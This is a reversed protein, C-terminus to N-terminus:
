RRSLPVGDGHLHGNVKVPPLEGDPAAAEPPAQTEASPARAVTGADAEPEADARVAVDTDADADAPVPADAGERVPAEGDDGGEPRAMVEPAAPSEEPLGSGAVEVAEDAAASATAGAALAAAAAASDHKLSRREPEAQLVDKPPAQCLETAGTALHEYLSRYDTTIRDFLEGTRQFHESVQERYAVLDARAGDREAELTKARLADLPWLRGLAVGVALGAAVLCLWLITGM